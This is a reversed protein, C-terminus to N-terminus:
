VADPMEATRADGFNAARPEVRVFPLFGARHELASGLSGADGGVQVLYKGEAAFILKAQPFIELLKRAETGEAAEVFVFAANGAPEHRYYTVERIGAMRRLFDFIHAVSEEPLDVVAMISLATTRESMTLTNIHVGKRRLVNLLRCPIIPDDEAELAFIWRM